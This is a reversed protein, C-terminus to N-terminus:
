GWGGFYAALDPETTIRRSATSATLHPFLDRRGWRAERALSRQTSILAVREAGSAAAAGDPAVLDLSGLQEATIRAAARALEDPVFRAAQPVEVVLRASVPEAARLIRADGSLEGGFPAPVDVVASPLAQLVTDVCVILAALSEATHIRVVADVARGRAAGGM